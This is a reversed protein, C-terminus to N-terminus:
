RQFVQTKSGESVQVKYSHKVRKKKIFSDSEHRKAAFSFSDVSKSDPTLRSILYISLRNTFFSLKTSKIRYSPYYYEYLSSSLSKFESSKEVSQMNSSFNLLQYVIRTKPKGQLVTGM